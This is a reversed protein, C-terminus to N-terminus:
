PATGSFSLFFPAPQINNDPGVPIDVEEQWNRNIYSFILDISGDPNQRWGFFVPVVSQGRTYTLSATETGRGGVIGQSAGPAQFVVLAIAVAVLVASASRRHRCVVSKM